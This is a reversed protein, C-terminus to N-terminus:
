ANNKKRFHEPIDKLTDPALEIGPIDVGLVLAAKVLKTIYARNATRVTVVADPYKQELAALDTIKYETM